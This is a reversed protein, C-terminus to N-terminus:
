FKRSSGRTLAHKSQLGLTPVHTKPRGHGSKTPVRERQARLVDRYLVTGGHCVWGATLTHVQMLVANKSLRHAM